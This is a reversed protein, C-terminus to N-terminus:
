ESAGAVADAGVIEIQATRIAEIRPSQTTKGTSRGGRQEIIGRVRLRQGEFAKPKLGAAEFLPLARGSITVTFDQTWRRGFNVYTVSGAQRVSLVRGEVIAFQGVGALIDGPNEANKIVGTQAWIGLKSRQADAEGARIDAACADDSQGDALAGGQAALMAQVSPGDADLRLLGRQRGYRDPTDSDSHITVTRGTVLATLLTTAVVADDNLLPAIGTLRVDRGDDLRLTRADIVAAVRGDGQQPLDCASAPAAVLWLASM